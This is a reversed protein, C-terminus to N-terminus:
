VTQEAAAAVIREEDIAGRRLIKPPAVTCDVVTSPSGGLPGSDLYLGVEGCDLPYVEIDIAVSDMRALHLSDILDAGRVPIEIVPHIHFAAGDKQSLYKDPRLSPAQRDCRLSRRGSPRLNIM